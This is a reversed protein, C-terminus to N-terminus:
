RKKIGMKLYEKTFQENFGLFVSANSLMRNCVTANRWIKLQTNMFAVPNYSGISLSVISGLIARRKPEPMHSLLNEIEEYKPALEIMTNYVLKEPSTYNDITNSITDTHPNIRKAQFNRNQQYSLQNFDSANNPILLSQSNTKNTLYERFQIVSDLITGHKNNCHRFANWRRTFTQECQICIWKPIKM